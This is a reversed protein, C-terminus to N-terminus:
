SVRRLGHVVQTLELLDADMQVITARLDNLMAIRDELVDITIKQNSPTENSINQIRQKTDVRHGRHTFCVGLKVWRDVLLDLRCADNKAAPLPTSLYAWVAPPYDQEASKKGQFLHSLISPVGRERRAEGRQEHLAWAALSTQLGGEITDILDPAVGGVEGLKMGGSVIGTIGGSIFDAYSNLRVARDRREALYALVESSNALERDIRAAVTRVEYGSMVITETVDQRLSLLELSTLAGGDATSRQRLEQIRQLKPLLGISTAFQTAEQSMVPGVEAVVRPSPNSKGLLEIQEVASAPQGCMLLFSIVGVYAQRM